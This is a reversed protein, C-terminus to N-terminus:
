MSCYHFRCGEEGKTFYLLAYHAPMLVGKPEPLSNWVIWNQLYLKGTRSLFDALLTAWKPLNLIVIAGGSKVVREYEVLWRKCWGVYDRENRDDSYGNYRKTLNFPPDAFGLDM